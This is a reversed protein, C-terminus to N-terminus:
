VVAPRVADETLNPACMEIFRYVYGRLYRGRKVGLSSTSPKFAGPLDLRRLGVDRAPDFAVEAIIGISGDLEVYAKIVDADLASMAVDPERGIRAFAEDVRERGTLGPAYTIIPWHAITELTPVKEALLPHGASVVVAHSWTRFPFTVLGDIDAMTNTAIGIDAEGALLIGPIGLPNAQTLAFKVNPFAANFRSIIPPLTYRAQTHTAAIRLTGEDKLSMRWGLDSLNQQDVLIREVIPLADQGADTLGLLRKGKRVFLEVGLEDEFDKVYKSVGSQATLLANAVETLNFNCRVAERVIRLQRFNM